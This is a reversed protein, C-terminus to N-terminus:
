NENSGIITAVLTRPKGIDRHECLYIGQWQGLNLTGNTIPIIISSGIISSKIHSPMDDIGETSHSFNVKNEPILHNFFLELDAQVTPDANENLTISASTHKIFLHLLGKNIKNLESIQSVIKETIIHFGRPYRNLHIITQLWM